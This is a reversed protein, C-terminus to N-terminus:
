SKITTGLKRQATKVMHLKRALELAADLTEPGEKMLALQISSSKLGQIFQNRALKLQFKQGFKPYAKEALTRLEGAFDDLLESAQLTRTHLRYQWEIENGAPSYRQQLASIAAGYDGGEVLGLRSLYLFPADELLPM